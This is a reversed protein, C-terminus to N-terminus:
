TSHEPKTVRSPFIREVTERAWRGIIEVNEDVAADDTWFWAYQDGHEALKSRVLGLVDARTLTPLPGDGEMWEAHAKCLIAAIEDLGVRHSVRVETRLKGDRSM